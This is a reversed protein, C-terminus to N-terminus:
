TGISLDATWGNSQLDSESFTVAGRHGVEIQYFDSNPVEVALSFTCDSGASTGSGLFSSALVTGAKDKVTVPAGTSIDDYGTDSVDCGKGYRGISPDAPNYLDLTITLTNTQTGLVANSGSRLLAWLGVAVIIALVVAGAVILPMRNPRAKPTGIPKGTYPDFRYQPPESPAEPLLPKGTYPDFRPADESSPQDSTQPSDGRSPTKPEEPDM